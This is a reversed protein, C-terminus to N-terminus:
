PRGPRIPAASGHRPSPTLVEASRSQDPPPQSSASPVRQSPSRSTKVSMRAPVSRAAGPALGPSEPIMARSPPGSPATAGTAPRDATPRATPRSRPASSGSRRTPRPPGGPARAGASWRRGTRVRPRDATRRWPVSRSGRDAVRLRLLGTPGSQRTRAERPRTRGPRAGELTLTRAAHSSHPRAPVLGASRVVTALDVPKIMFFNIVLISNVAALGVGVIFVCRSGLAVVAAPPAEPHRRHHNLRQAFHSSMVLGLRRSLTGATSM